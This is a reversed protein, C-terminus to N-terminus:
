EQDYYDELSSNMIAQIVADSPQSDGILERLDKVILSKIRAVLVAVYNYLSKPLHFLMVSDKQEEIYVVNLFSQINYGRKLRNQYRLKNHKNLTIQNLLTLMCSLYLNHLMVPDERYPTKKLFKRVTTTIKSLYHRFDVQLLDSSQTRCQNLYKERINNVSNEHLFPDFCQSFIEKQYDVKMPYM